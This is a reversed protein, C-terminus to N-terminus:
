SVRLSCVKSGSVEWILLTCVEQDLKDNGVGACNCYVQTYYVGVASQLLTIFVCGARFAHQCSLVTPVACIELVYGVM